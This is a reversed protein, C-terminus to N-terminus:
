PMNSSGSNPVTNNNEELQDVKRWIFILSSIPNFILLMVTWETKKSKELNRFSWLKRMIIVFQVTVLVQLIVLQIYYVNTTPVLSKLEVPFWFVLM